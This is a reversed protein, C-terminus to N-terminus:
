TVLAKALDCFIGEVHVKQNVSKFTIFATDETSVGKWFGYCERVLINKPHQNQSLRSHTAKELIKFFCNM